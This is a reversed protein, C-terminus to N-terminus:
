TEHDHLDRERWSSGIQDPVVPRYNMALVPRERGRSKVVAFRDRLLISEIPDDVEGIERDGISPQPGVQGSVSRGELVHPLKLTHEVEYDAKSSDIETCSLVVHPLCLATREVEVEWIDM